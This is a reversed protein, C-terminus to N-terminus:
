RIGRGFDIIEKLENWNSAHLPYGLETLEHFFTVLDNKVLLNLDKSLTLNYNGV